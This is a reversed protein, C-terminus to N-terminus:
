FRPKGIGPSERSRVGETQRDYLERLASRLNGRHRLFLPEHDATQGTLQRVLANLLDPTTRCIFVTPLRGPRHATIVLRRARRALWRLERWGWWALQEAGDVFIEEAGAVADRQRPDLRRQAPGVRVMVAGPRRVQWELLLTTKGHGMPGVVAGSGGAAALRAELTDWDLDPGQFPLRELCASRFPNDRAKM